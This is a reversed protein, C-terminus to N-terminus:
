KKSEKLIALAPVKIEELIESSKKPSSLKVKNSELDKKMADLESMRKQLNSIIELMKKKETAVPDPSPM